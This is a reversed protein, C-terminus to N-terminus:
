SLDSWTSRNDETEEAFRYAIGDIVQLAEVLLLAVLLIKPTAEAGVLSGPQASGLIKVNAGLGLRRAHETVM